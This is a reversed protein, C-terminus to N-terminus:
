PYALPSRQACALCFFEYRPMVGGADRVTRRFPPPMLQGGKTCIFRPSRRLKTGTDDPGAFSNHHCFDPPKASSHAGTMAESEAVFSYM